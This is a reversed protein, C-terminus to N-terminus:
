SNKQIDEPFVNSYERVVPIESLRQENGHVSASFLICGQSRTIELSSLYLCTSTVLESPSTFPSIVHKDFYTLMVHNAPLWDMGM